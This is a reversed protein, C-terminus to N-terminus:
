AFSIVAAFTFAILNGPQTVLAGREQELGALGDMDHGLAKPVRLDIVHLDIRVDKRVHLLACRRLDPNKM